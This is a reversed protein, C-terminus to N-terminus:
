FGGEGFKNLVVLVYEFPYIMESIPDFGMLVINM